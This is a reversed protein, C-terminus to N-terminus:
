HLAPCHLGLQKREKEPLDASAHLNEAVPLKMNVSKSLPADLRMTEINTPDFIEVNPKGDSSSRSWGEPWGRLLSYGTDRLVRPVADATLRWKGSDSFLYEM